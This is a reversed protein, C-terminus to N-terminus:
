NRSPEKDKLEKIEIEYLTVSNATLAMILLKNWSERKEQCQQYHSKTLENLTQQIKNLEASTIKELIGKSPASERPNKKFIEDKTTVLYYVSKQFLLTPM